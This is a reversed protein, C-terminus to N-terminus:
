SEFPSEVTASGGGEQLSCRGAELTCTAGNDEMCGVWITTDFGPDARPPERVLDACFESMDSLQSGAAVSDCGTLMLLAFAAGIFRSSRM